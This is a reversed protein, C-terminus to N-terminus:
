GQGRLGCVDDSFTVLLARSQLKRVWVEFKRTVQSSSGNFFRSSCKLSPNVSQQDVLATSHTFMSSAGRITSSLNKIRIKVQSDLTLPARRREFVRSIDLPKKM